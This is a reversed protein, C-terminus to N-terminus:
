GYVFATAGRRRAQDAQTLDGGRVGQDQPGELLGPAVDVPRYVVGQSLEEVRVPGAVAVREVQRAEGVLHSTAGGSGGIDELPGQEM